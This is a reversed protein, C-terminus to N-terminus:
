RTVDVKIGDIASAPIRTPLRPQPPHANHVDTLTDDTPQPPCMRTRPPRRHTRYCAFPRRDVGADRPLRGDIVAYMEDIRFADESRRCRPSRIAGRRPRRGRVARQGDRRLRRRAPLLATNGDRRRRQAAHPSDLNVSGLDDDDDGGAGSRRSVALQRLKSYRITRLHKDTPLTASRRNRSYSPKTRISVIGSKFASRARRMRASDDRCRRKAALAVRGAAGSRTKRRPVCARRGARGSSSRATRATTSRSARLSPRDAMM